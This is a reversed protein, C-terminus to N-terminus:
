VFFVVKWHTRLSWVSRCLFFDKKRWYSCLPFHAWLPFHAGFCSPNTSSYKRLLFILVEQLIQTRKVKLTARVDATLESLWLSISLAVSKWPLRSVNQPRMAWGFTQPPQKYHQRELRAWSTPLPASSCAFGREGKAPFNMEIQDWARDYLM